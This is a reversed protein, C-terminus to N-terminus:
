HTVSFLVKSLVFAAALCARKMASDLAKENSLSHFGAGFFRPNQDDSKFDMEGTMQVKNGGVTAWWGDMRGIEAAGLATAAEEAARQLLWRRENGGVLKLALLFLM